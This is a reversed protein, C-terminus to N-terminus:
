ASNHPIVHGKVVDLIIRKAKIGKKNFASYAVADTATPIAIPNATTNKVVEEWLENERLVLYIRTKWSVFNVAGDLWEETRLGVSTM